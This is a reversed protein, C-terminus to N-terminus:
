LLYLSFLNKSRKKRGTHTTTQILGDTDRVDHCARSCVCLVTSLHHQGTHEAEMWLISQFIKRSKKKFIFVHRDKRRRRRRMRRRRIIVWARSGKIVSRTVSLHSWSERSPRSRSLRRSHVAKKESSSVRVRWKIGSKGEKQTHTNSWKV